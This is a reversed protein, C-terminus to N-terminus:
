RLGFMGGRAAYAAAEARNSLELKRLVSRVHHEATRPSIVLREAIQPNTLGEGLLALVQQERKTLVAGSRPAARGPAGLERLLAAAEDAHRAAGLDTLAALATRTQEIALRPSEAALARGLEIRAESEELVMGLEALREIAAELAGPDTPEGALRAARAGLTTAVSVLDDRRAPAARAAFAASAEAAAAPDERALAVEARLRLLEAPPEGDGAAIAREVKEGALEFDGRALHLGVATRLASPRDELGALLREAEELRGQRLRLEALEVLAV